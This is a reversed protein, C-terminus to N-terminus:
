AVAVHGIDAHFFVIHDQLGLHSYLEQRAQVLPLGSFRILGRLADRTLITLQDQGRVYGKRMASTAFSTYAPSPPAAALWMTALQVVTMMWKSILTGCSTM